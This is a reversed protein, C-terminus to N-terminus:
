RICVYVTNSSLGLPGSSVAVNSCGSGSLSAPLLLNVQDLGPFSPQPGAYVVEVASGNVLARLNSADRFGTGFLILYASGSTVDIPAPAYVGNQITAVSEYTVAAGSAVRTVYAAAIGQENLTFLTARPM